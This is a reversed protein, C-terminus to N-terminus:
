ARRVWVATLDDAQPAGAEHDRVAKVIADLPEPGAAALCRTLAEDGFLTGRGDQAETVGDTYLLLGDGPALTCRDAGYPVGGIVALAPNRGMPLREVRGDARRVLPPNHGANVSHLTGDVADLVGYWLTVFMTQENEAALEDNLRSLVAAPDAVFPAIARLRTRTVAMFFAAPVGKGSVDAVVLALRREDLAFWDYFDGGVERAPNMTAQIQVTALPSAGRPLISAQMERAIQLEQQLSALAERTHMSEKLERLLELLRGQQRGVLATLRGLLTALRALQPQGDATREVSLEGLIEARGAPDLTGALERLQRRLLREQQVAVRQREERLSDLTRLETRLREAARALRAAETNGLADADDAGAQLRGEALAEVLSVPRLLPAMFRRMAYALAGAFVAGVALLLALPLWGPSPASAAAPRAAQLWAAPRAPPAGPGPLAMQLRQAADSPQGALLLGRPSSLAVPQGLQRELSLLMPRLDAAAVWAGGDAARRAVVFVAPVSAPGGQLERLRVGAVEPRGEQLALWAVRDLLGPGSGQGRPDLRELQVGPPPPQGQAVADLAARLTTTAVAAAGHWAQQLGAQAARDIQGRWQSERLLAAGTVVALALAMAVAWLALVRRRLTLAPRGPAASVGAM